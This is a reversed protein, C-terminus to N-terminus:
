ASRRQNTGGEDERARVHRPRLLGRGRPPRVHQQDRCVVQIVVEAGVPMRDDPRGVDVPQRRSAHPEVARVVLVWETIRAARREHRAQPGVGDPDVVQHRRDPGVHGVDDRQRLHELAVAVHRCTHALNIVVPIGAVDAGAAEVVRGRPVQEDIRAADVFVLFRLQRVERRSAPEAAREREVRRRRGVVLVRVALDGAFRNGQELLVLVTREEDGRPEIPRVAREDGRRLVEVLVRQIAHGRRRLQRRLLERLVRGRREERCWLVPPERDGLLALRDARVVRRDTEHVRLDAAHELRELPETEGVVGDHDEHAIVAVVEGVV